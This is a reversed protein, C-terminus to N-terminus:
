EYLMYVHQCASAADDTDRGHRLRFNCSSPPVDGHFQKKCLRLDFDIGGDVGIREMYDMFMDEGELLAIYSFFINDSSKLANMLNYVDGKPQEARVIPPFTWRNGVLSEPPLWENDEIELEVPEEPSILGNELAPVCTFVKFTSGPPYVAQTIRNVLPSVSEEDTLYKWVKPDMSITFWNPNFSPYSGYGELAGTHYDMVIACGSQGEKINESLVTYIKDQLESDITLTIDAGDQAPQEYIIYREEGLSDAVYIKKGDKGRLMGDYAKELGSKGVVDTEKLTSDNEIDEATAPTTYGVMHAVADMHPYYRLPTISDDDVFVGKIQELSKVKDESLTDKVFAKVSAVEQGGEQAKYVAKSVDEPSVDIIGSVSSAVSEIDDAVDEVIVCVTQAYTNQAFSDRDSSLIEGRKGKLTVVRVSDGTQMYPLILSPDYMISYGNVDPMITAQYDHSFEGLLDSKFDITYLLSFCESDELATVEREALEADTIQLAEYINTYRKVFDEKEGLDDSGAYCLDYAQAYKGDCIDQCFSYGVSVAGGPMGTCSSCILLMALAMALVIIVSVVKKM